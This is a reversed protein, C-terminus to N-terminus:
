EIAIRVISVPIENQSESGIEIRIVIANPRM